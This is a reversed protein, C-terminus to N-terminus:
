KKTLFAKRVNAEFINKIRENMQQKTSLKAPGFFPKEPMKGRKMGSPFSKDGNKTHIKFTKKTVRDQTGKEFWPLRFDSLINVVVSLANAGNKHYKAQVGEELTRFGVIKGKKTKAMRADRQWWGKKINSHFSKARSTQKRLNSKTEDVLIKAAGGVCKRLIKEFNKDSLGDLMKRFSETGFTTSMDMRPSVM